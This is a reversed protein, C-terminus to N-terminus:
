LMFCSLRVHLRENMVFLSRQIIIIIAVFVLYLTKYLRLSVGIQPQFVISLIICDMIM